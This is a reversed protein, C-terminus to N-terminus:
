QYWASFQFTLPAYSCISIAALGLNLSYIIQWKKHTKDYNDDTMQIKFADSRRDEVHLWSDWPGFPRLLKFILSGIINIDIAM